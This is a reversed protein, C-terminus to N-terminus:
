LGLGLGVSLLNLVRSDFLPLNIDIEKRRKEKDSFVYHTGTTAFVFKAKCNPNGCIIEQLKRGEPADLHHCSSCWEGVRRKKSMINARALIDVMSIEAGDSLIWANRKKMKPPPRLHQQRKIEHNFKPYPPAIVGKTKASNSHCKKRMSSIISEVCTIKKRAHMTKKKAFSETMKHVIAECWAGLKGLSTLKEIHPDQFSNKCSLLIEAKGSRTCDTGMTATLFGVWLFSDDFFQHSITLLSLQKWITTKETYAKANGEDYLAFITSGCGIVSVRGGRWLKGLIEETTLDATNYGVVFTVEETTGSDAHFLHFPNEVALTNKNRANLWRVCTVYEEENSFERVYFKNKAKQSLAELFNNAQNEKNLVVVHGAYEINEEPSATQVVDHDIVVQHDAIDYVCLAEIWKQVDIPQNRFFFGGVETVADHSLQLFAERLYSIAVPKALPGVLVVDELPSQLNLNLFQKLTRACRKRASRKRYKYMKRHMSDSM